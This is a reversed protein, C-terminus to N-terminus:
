EVTPMRNSQITSGEAEVSGKAGATWHVTVIARKCLDELAFAKSAPITVTKGDLKFGLEKLTDPEIEAKLIALGGGSVSLRGEPWETLTIADDGRKATSERIKTKAVNQAAQNSGVGAAKNGDDDEQAVGTIAALAYRRAYTIASGVAQADFRERMMAPLSLDTAIWEGSSHALLTTLIMEKADDMGFRAHPMQIISIGEAALHPRTAAIVTALDAYKSRFAPNDSDKLVSDFKLQAKALAEVLKGISASMRWQIKPSLGVDSHQEEAEYDEVV